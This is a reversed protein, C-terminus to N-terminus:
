KVKNAQEYCIIIKEFLPATEIVWRKRRGILENKNKLNPLKRLLGYLIDFELIPYEPKVNVRCHGTDDFVEVVDGQPFSYVLGLGYGPHDFRYPIYNLLLTKYQVTEKLKM